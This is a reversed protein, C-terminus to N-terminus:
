VGSSVVFLSEQRAAWRIPEAAAASIALSRRLIAGNRAFRTQALAASGSDAPAPTPHIPPVPFSIIAVFAKSCHAEM